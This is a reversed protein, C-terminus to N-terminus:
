LFGTCETLLPVFIDFVDHEQYLFKVTYELICKFNFCIRVANKIRSDVSHLVFAFIYTEKDLICKLPFSSM